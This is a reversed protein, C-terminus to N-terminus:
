SNIKEFYDDDSWDRVSELEGGLAEVASRLEIFEFYNCDEAAATLAAIARPDGYRALLPAAYPIDSITQFTESLFAYIKDSQPARSLIEALILALQEDATKAADLLLDATEHPKRVLLATYYQTVADEGLEHLLGLVSPLVEGKEALLKVACQKVEAGESDSLLKILHPTTSELEAIRDELRPMLGSEIQAKMMEILLAPDTQESIYESPSKGGLASIPLISWEASLAAIIDEMDEASLKETHMYRKVFDAFSKHFDFM